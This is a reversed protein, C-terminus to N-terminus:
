RAIRGVVLRNAWGPTIASAAAMVKTQRGIARHPGRLPVGREHVVRWAAAAVDEATLRVGLRGVSAAGQADGSVMDTAVFLPLLSRVRVGESRWEIELAETLSKVAAKTAGYTALAPQGYLASASCLNLLVGRDARRLYPFGLAAGNVVGTVNVDVMRRHTDVDMGAFPGSALVGANNVLVDLRGDVCFRMLTSRWQDPDRVDLAGHVTGTRRGAAEAVADADVDYMGVRWGGALFLGAVAKGIGRAAGTVLISKGTVV